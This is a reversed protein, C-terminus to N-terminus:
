ARGPLPQGVGLVDEEILGADPDHLELRFARGLDLGGEPDLGVAGGAQVVKASRVAVPM